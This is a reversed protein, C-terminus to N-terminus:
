SLNFALLHTSKAIKDTCNYYSVRFTYRYLNTKSDFYEDIILIQWLLNESIKQQYEHILQQYERKKPLTINADLTIIQSTLEVAQNAIAKPSYIEPSALDDLIIEFYNDQSQFNPNLTIIDKQLLDSNHHYLGLSYKEFYKGNQQYFVKGIEFFQPNPLKLRQYQDLQFELSQIISQRLYPFESNISNQTKIAQNDLPHQVLPWSRIEDYGLDVLKDKLEEILYLIKATIDPLSTPSVPKNTPITQYGWFRIVEEALDQPISLDPRHGIKKVVDIAFTTPIDIGSIESPLNPDFDIVPPTVPTPYYDFLSSDIQGGCNELILRTLESFALPILECDLDKELRTSAETITKLQKSDLRIRVRNYIAVEIIIDTTADTIGSNKGGVLDTSLVEAPNSIVLNEPSLNLTTGDLTTFNTTKGHNNEWIIHDTSKAVDFAHSPIGYMFMVYNTLDVINNVSNIQHIACFQSLWASSPGVKVNSIKIAMVRTIDPSTVEIPLHYKSNPTQLTTASLQLPLNYFVALDRALGYYGLCDGRNVKIDLDFVIEDAIKEYFNCFHGIMSLDDRLKEPAIDLTPLFKQLHSYILKM